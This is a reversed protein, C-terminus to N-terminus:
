KRVRRLVARAPAGDAGVLRLPLCLLEYRGPEVGGLNLGELIVVGAELLVEHTRPPDHFRQVSLYDVGILRVGRAVLWAAADTSLAVYNSTFEGRRSTWLDSNGTRLLLREVGDPLELADLARADVVDAQIRAVDVPGVLAELALREATAGDPLHHWPADVHTGAHVDCVLTSVNVADGAAIRAAAELRFGASGPWCPLGDGLPVSIDILEVRGSESGM